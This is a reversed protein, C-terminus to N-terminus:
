WITFSDRLLRGYPRNRSPLVPLYSQCCLDVRLSFNIEFGCVTDSNSSEGSTRTVAIASYPSSTRTCVSRSGFARPSIHHLSTMLWQEAGSCALHDFSLGSFGTRGETRELAFVPTTIVSFSNSFSLTNMFPFSHTSM